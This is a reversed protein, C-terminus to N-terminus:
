KHKILYLGKIPKQSKIHRKCTDYSKGIELAASKISAYEVTVGTEINTVTVAKGLKCSIKAKAEESHKRNLRSAGIAKKAEDTHKYERIKVKTEESHKRDLAVARLKQKTEDSRKLGTLSASIKAKTDDSINRNLAALRIM